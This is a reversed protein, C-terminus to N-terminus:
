RRRKGNGSIAVSRKAGSRTEGEDSADDESGEGGDAEAAQLNLASAIESLREDTEKEEGLSADLLEAAKDEGLIEAYTKLSGYVAIEYHEAKQAATILGADLVAEDADQEMMEKGEEVIGEMGKCLKRGASEGLAEFIQELRKVQEQTVQLHEEFASKLDASTAKRALKPLAKVLQKEASYMDKLEEVFLDRLTGISM